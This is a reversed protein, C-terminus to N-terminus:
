TNYYNKMKIDVAARCYNIKGIMGAENDYKVAKYKRVETLLIDETVKWQSTDDSNSGALMANICINLIDGGSLGEAVDAVARLDAEVREANPLHIEFLERRMTINPMGFKIHRVVRRLLAPDYNGFLNTALIVVGDFHDLCQMLVNCNQNISTGCSEGADVRRSLLSDACDFFLVADHKKAMGFCAVIHKATDGIYKSILASYDVQYLRKGLGYAVALAARTKGTGPPGYFNLMCRGHQPQIKSLQWVEELAERKKLYCMAMQIDRRVAEHLVLGDLSHRAEPVVLTGLEAIAQDGTGRLRPNRHDEHTAAEPPLQFGEYNETNQNQM